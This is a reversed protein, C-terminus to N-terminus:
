NDLAGNMIWTRVRGLQEASLAGTPPMRAGCPPMDTLKRYLLSQDPNGAVVLSMGSAGCESGSAVRNLLSSRVTSATAGAPLSFSGGTASSSHCVSGACKPALIDAYITSFADPKGSPAATGAAGTGGAGSGASGTATGNLRLAVVVAPTSAGVPIVLTDGSVSLWSNIGGPAKWRWVEKGTERQYAIVNGQFTATLVLDNVVTAGGTPDGDVTANWLIKGTAADIAVLDGNASGIESGFYATQNPSYMTPANLTAVYVVGDALAPPTLVGGFSGPLVRTSGTLETLQDNMHMGVEVPGWLVEGTDRRNAWVRAEKGTSVVIPVGAVETLMTHLLDRDFLDHQITQHHWVYSGTKVDLVLTSDTYLNDGVRSKGNPFMPTGPFPAPNAVAWFVRGADIDISPPYWSGGGSNVSTNGWLDDTGKITDFRWREEGTKQDLAKLIGRDGGTYIGRTSIPVTSVLVMDNFVTPQIDIGATATDVVKKTWLVKGTAADFAGVSDSGRIAFVKGWGVAVGNPGPNLNTDEVAWKVKGSALDIARVSSYTDEIYVTGGTIIPVTSCMGYAIVLGPLQVSWAQQLKSVNASTIPSDKTYRSNNYDRGPLPWEHLSQAVEPPVGPNTAASNGTGATNPNAGASGAAGMGATSNAATGAASAVAGAGVGASPVGVGAAAGAISSVGASGTAATGASPAATGSSSEPSTPTQGTAANPNATSSGGSCGAYATACVTCLVFLGRTRM